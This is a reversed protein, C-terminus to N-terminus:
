HGTIVLDIGEIGRKQFLDQVANYGHPSSFHWEVVQGNAALTQAKAERLIDDKWFETDPPPYNKWDKADLLVKREADYGDFWVTKGSGDPIQVKYEIGREVGSILEQYAEGKPRAPAKEWTGPGGQSTGLLESRSRLGDRAMAARAPREPSMAVPSGSPAPLSADAGPVAGGGRHRQQLLPHKVLKDANQQVWKAFEPGLRASSRIERLLAPMDGKGRTLYAVLGILLNLVVLEHGKAFDRAAQHINPLVDAAGFHPGDFSGPSLDPIRGWAGYFGDRYARMAAPISDVMYALVAKLGILALLWAAGEVGLTAGLAAGPVAGAGFALAGTAAGFVGGVLAGCGLYLGIDHCISRLLPWVAKLSINGLRAELNRLALGESEELAKVVNGVRAGVQMAYDHRYAYQDPPGGDHRGTRELRDHIAALMRGEFVRLQWYFEERDFHPLGM